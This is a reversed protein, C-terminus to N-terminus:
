CGKAISDGMARAPTKATMAGGDDTKEIWQQLQDERRAGKGEKVVRRSSRQSKETGAICTWERFGLPLSLTISPETALTHSLISQNSLLRVSVIAVSSTPPLLCSLIICISDLSAQQDVDVKVDVDVNIDVDTDADDNDRPGEIRATEEDDDQPWRAM